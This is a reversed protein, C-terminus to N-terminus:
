AAATTAICRLHVRVASLRKGSAANPNPGDAAPPKRLAKAVCAGHPLPSYARASSRPAGARSRSRSRSCSRAAPKGAASRPKELANVCCAAVRPTLKPPPVEPVTILVAAPVRMCARMYVARLEFSSLNCIFTHVGINTKTDMYSHLRQGVAAAQMSRGGAGGRGSRFNTSPSSRWAM